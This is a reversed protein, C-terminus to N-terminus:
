RSVAFHDRRNKAWAEEGTGPDLPREKGYSVTRLRDAAVGLSQLYDRAARARQEGLALNYEVTGREDCHGEVTVKAERHSQLWLAHKELTVRAADTLTSSDYDFHIDELPGGEESASAPWDSLDAGTAGEGEIPRVDPGEDVPQAKRETGAPSSGEGGPTTALVPPRKGGGCAALLLLVGLAATRETRRHPRSTM